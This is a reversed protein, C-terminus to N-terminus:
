STFIRRLSNRPSPSSTVARGIVLYDAGMTLAERASVVRKQDYALDESSRIGPTVVLFDRGCIEKIIPLERASSVVGDLGCDKALSSLRKVIEHVSINIGLNYLDKEDLSTLVTVAILKTSASMKVVERKMKASVRLMQEGGFGHLTLMDIDYQLCVNLARSVTNPIDHFKLDLFVKKGLDKLRKVISPGCSCFLELGVKYFGIDEGLEEVIRFAERESSFDLAIIVKEFNM